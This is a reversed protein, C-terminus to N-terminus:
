QNHKEKQPSLLRHLTEAGEGAVEPEERGAAPPRSAKAVPSAMVPSLYSGDCDNSTRLPICDCQISKKTPIYNSYLSPRLVSGQVWHLM